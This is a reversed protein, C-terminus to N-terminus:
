YWESLLLQKPPPKLLKLLLNIWKEWIDVEKHNKYFINKVPNYYYRAKCRIIYDNFQKFYDRITWLWSKSSRQYSSGQNSLYQSIVYFTTNKISQKTTKVKQINVMKSNHIDQWIDVIYNYPIYDGKYLIHLVGNGENTTIKFYDFQLKHGMKKGSYYKHIQESRLYGNKILDQIKTRRIIQKFKRFSENIGTPLYGEKSYQLDSTTLTVFRVEYNLRRSLELGTKICNFARKQKKSWVVTQLVVTNQISCHKLFNIVM